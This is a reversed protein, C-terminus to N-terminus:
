TLKKNTKKKKKPIKMTEKEEKKPSIVKRKCVKAKKPSKSKSTGEKITTGSKIKKPSIVKRISVKTKKSLTPKRAGGNATTATASTKKLNYSMSYKIYSEDFKNVDIRDITFGNKIYFEHVPSYASLKISNAGILEGIIKVNNLLLTGIGKIDNNPVCISYIIIFNGLSISCAGLIKNNNQNQIYITTNNTLSQVFYKYGIAKQDRCFTNNSKIQTVLENRDGEILSSNLLQRSYRKDRENLVYFYSYM